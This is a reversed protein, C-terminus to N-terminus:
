GLIVIENKPVIFEILVESEDINKEKLFILLENINKASAVIEKNKIAIIKNAFEERIKISNEQFWKLSEESSNLLELDSVM